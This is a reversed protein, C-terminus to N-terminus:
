DKTRLVSLKEFTWWADVLNDEGTMELGNSDALDPM